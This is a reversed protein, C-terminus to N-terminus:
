FPNRRARDIALSALQSQGGTSLHTDDSWLYQSTVADIILTASTCNPLPTTCAADTINGLGFSGPSRGISQFRLQAQVLGVFRGDLVVSVGLQENFATTLDSMIKARDIGTPDLARQAIAFPTLGLDPLDSVVVKVGLDVLRNVALALQKGRARADDLLSAIDKDFLEKSQLVRGYEQQAKQIEFGAPILYKDMIREFQRAIGKMAKGGYGYGDGLKDKYLIDHSPESWAYSLITQVQIECRLGAVACVRSPTPSGWSAAGHM